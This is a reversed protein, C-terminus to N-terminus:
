RNSWQREGEREDHATQAAALNEPAVVGTADCFDCDLEGSYVPEDYRNRNAFQSRSGSGLCNPCTLSAVTETTM